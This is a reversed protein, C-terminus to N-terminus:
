LIFNSSILSKLFSNSATENLELIRVKDKYPMSNSSSIWPFDTELHMRSLLVILSNSKDKTM